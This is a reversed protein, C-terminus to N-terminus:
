QIGNEGGKGRAKGGFLFAFAGWWTRRRLIEPRLLCRCRIGSCSCESDSGGVGLACNSHVKITSINGQQLLNGIKTTKSTAQKYMM